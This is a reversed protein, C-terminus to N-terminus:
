TTSIEFGFRKTLFEKVFEKLDAASTDLLNTAGIENAITNCLSDAASLKVYLRFAWNPVKIDKQFDLLADYNADGPALANRRQTKQFDLLADYNADGPAIANRRQDVVPIFKEVSNDKGGNNQREYPPDNPPQMRAEHKTSIQNQNRKQLLISNRIDLCHSSAILLLLLFVKMM